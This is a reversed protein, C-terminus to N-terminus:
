HSPQLFLLAFIVSWKCNALWPVKIQPLVHRGRLSLLLLDQTVHWFCIFLCFGVFCVCVVGCSIWTTHIVHLSNLFFLLSKKIIIQIKICHIIKKQVYFLMHYPTEWDYHLFLYICFHISHISDLFQISFFTIWITKSQLHLYIHKDTGIHALM